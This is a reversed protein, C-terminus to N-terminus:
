SAVVTLKTGSNYTNGSTYVKYTIGNITQTSSEMVFPAGGMTFKTLPSIDSPVLIYFHQGSTSATKEYTHAATTTPSYRNANVALASASAAFGYYIPYRANVVVKNPIDLGMVTGVVTYNHSNTDITVNQTTVLPSSDGTALVVDGDMIKMATPEGNVMSGTLTVQTAENKYITGPSATITVDVKAYLLAIKQATNDLEDEVNTNKYKILSAKPDRAFNIAALLDELFEEKTGEYGAAVADDYYGQLLREDIQECTYYKSLYM